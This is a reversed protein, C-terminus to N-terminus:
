KGKTKTKEQFSGPIIFFKSGKGSIKQIRLPKFSECLRKPRSRTLRFFDSYEREPEMEGRFGSNHSSKGKDQSDERRFAQFEQQSELRQHNGYLGQPIYRKCAKGLKKGTSPWTLGKTKWARNSFAKSYHPIGYRMPGTELSIENM